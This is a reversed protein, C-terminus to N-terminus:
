IVIHPFARYEGRMDQEFLMAASMLADALDAKEILSVAGPNEFERRLLRSCERDYHEAAELHGHM